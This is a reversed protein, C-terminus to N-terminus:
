QILRFYLHTEVDTDVPLRVGFTRASLVNQTYKIFLKGVDRTSMRIRDAQAMYIPTHSM